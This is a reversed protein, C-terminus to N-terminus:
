QERPVPSSYPRQRIESLLQQIARDLQPDGGHWMLAPDDIVAIDPPVGKGELAWGGNEDYFRESPISSLGGDVYPIRQPGLGVQAGMTTTGILKGLGWIRFYYAFGDGGSLTVGNILLAKPGENIFEPFPESGAARRYGVSIPLSRRGLVEIVHLAHLGGENWRVDVILAKRRLQENFQRTFERSGYFYTDALYLYGIKGGSKRDVYSRTAEVWARQRIINEGWRDLLKVTVRKATQDVFPKDSVTITADKGALGKFAIWPDKLPDVKTGNVALIFTGKHVNVGPAALPNRGRIDSAAGDYIKSIRYAGDALEFDVALMGTDEPPAENATSPRVWLHSTSLEGVMDRIIEYIDERHTCLAALRAYKARMSPWDVGRMKRDVFLDRYLRWADNFIQQGESHRDLEVTMRDLRIPKELKQQPVADIVFLGNDNRVGIKSGDASVEFGQVGTLVDKAERTKSLDLEKVSPEGDVPTFLFLLGGDHAITLNSYEGKDLLAFVARHEFDALDVKIAEGKPREKSAKNAAIWPPGLEKRLPVVLLTGTSPYVFYGNSAEISDFTISLLNRASVFYLYDGNLDFVPWSDAVCGSTVQYSRDEGVSYLWIAAYRTGTKGGRAYALWRSDPSWSLRSQSNLPDLDIKKTEGSSVCHIYISGTSDYFAVRKNDPSWVPQFRFGTGIQTVRRTDTGDPRGIYLEYEGSADSFYSIWAGDPSWAPDREAVGSTHTLNTAAGTASDATWIDGRAEVLIKSGDSSLRWNTIFKSADVTISRKPQLGAPITVPVNRLQRTALDLLYLDLGDVFVIEGHGNSRPGISPWKVDFERFNTMQRRRGSKPDYSWINLRGEPGQDSVYYITEGHWMPLTDTGKWDTVSKSQHTRLNFLWIDPAYGGFYHKKAETL